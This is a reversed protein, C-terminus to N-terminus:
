PLKGEAVWAVAQEETARLRVPSEWSNPYLIWDVDHEWRFACRGEIHADREEDYDEEDSLEVRWNAKPDAVLVVEKGSYITYVTM